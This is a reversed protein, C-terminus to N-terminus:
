ARGARQGGVLLQSTRLFCFATTCMVGGAIFYLLSASVKAWTSCLIGLRGTVGAAGDPPVRYIRQARSLLALLDLKLHGSIGPGGYVIAAASPQRRRLEEVVHQARRGGGYIIVHEAGLATLVPASLPTGVATIEAGPLETRLLKVARRIAGDEGRRAFTLLLVRNGSASM